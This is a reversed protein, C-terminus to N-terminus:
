VTVYYTNLFDKVTKEYLEPNEYHSGGHGANEMILLKKPATCAAYNKESMWTPVFDDEKGHIFLIPCKASKVADLTSCDGFGYGAKHRCIMNNINMVPFKPLKYDRKLIHTFVDEPSTFACDAIVAKVTSPFDPLGSAMLVTAGGMSTGFLLIQKEENFRQNVYNIWSICDYRDLVGFGIYQGESKGHARHDVILCDIGQKHFFSAICACNGMGNSTYGHFCIALKNTASEAPVYDGHLTLGDKSQITVHEMPLSLLYEKNPYIIKKYEEWKQADAMEDLDVKVGDQRPIVKNFLTAAGITAGAAGLIVAGAAIGGLIVQTNM